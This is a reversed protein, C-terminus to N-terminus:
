KKSPTIAAWVESAIAEVEEVARQIVGPAKVETEATLDERRGHSEPKEDGSQRWPLFCFGRV